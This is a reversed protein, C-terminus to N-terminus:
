RWGSVLPSVPDEVIKGSSVAVTVSGIASEDETIRTLKVTRRSVPADSLAKTALARYESQSRRPEAPFLCGDRNQPRYLHRHIMERHPAPECRTRHARRRLSGRRHRFFNHCPTQSRGTPYNRGPADLSL